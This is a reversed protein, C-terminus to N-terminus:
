VVLLELYRIGVDLFQATQKTVPDSRSELAKKIQRLDALQGICGRGAQACRNSARAITEACRRTVEPDADDLLPILEQASRVDLEPMALLLDIAFRRAGDTGPQKALSILVPIAGSGITLVTTRIADRVEPRDDYRGVLATVPASLAKTDKSSKLIEGIATVVQQRVAPYRDNLAELLDPLAEIADPGINTLAEAVALKVQWNEFDAGLRRALAPVASKAQGRLSGITRAAQARTPVDRSTLGAVAHELKLNSDQGLLACAVGSALVLLASRRSLGASWRSGRSYSKM